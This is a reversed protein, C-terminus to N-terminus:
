KIRQWETAMNDETIVPKDGLRALLSERPELRQRGPSPEALTDVISLIEELRARHHADNMDFLPRGDPRFKLLIDRWRAKDPVLPSDSVLMSNVVRVAHPYVSAATKYVVESSTANYLAIGGPLLHERMLELFESSLLNTSHARWSYTTNMVIADYKAEPHHRLWRAGDDLIIRVKPNTLLSKVPAMDAIIETQGTNIEIIDVREAQPHQAIMQAWSGTGLGIVLMRKPAAHFASVIAPRILINRDNVLDVSFKGDYVGGGYLTGSEDVTCIGSKSEVVRVIKPSTPYKERFLLRGFMDGHAAEGGFGVLLVAAALVAAGLPRGQANAILLLAGGFLAGSVALFTAIQAFGLADMLIFGTSLSGITSGVINAVYLYSVRQGVRGDAAVSAHAILPFLVGFGTAALVTMPLMIGIKLHQVIMSVAPVLSFALLNVILVVVGITRLTRSRDAPDLTSCIRKGLLSGFAIGALYSGLLLPFGTAHGKSAYAYARVWLIEYSLSIFGTCAALVLATPLALAPAGMADSGDAADASGDEVGDTGRPALSFHAAVGALGILVNLAAALNVTGQMGLTRMIIVAALFCAAAAGLTNVFYLIGLSSGVNRSGRVLYTTLIPLTAGMLMTPLVVMAFALAGTQFTSAGLTADGIGRFISLSVFGFLGICAEMVGFALLLPFGRRKSLAGGALSGLGLGLMFASVVATVSEINIGYIAFLARQWVIQYLLAPVGSVFFLTGLLWMSSSQGAPVSGSKSPSSVM